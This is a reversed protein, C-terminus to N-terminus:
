ALQGEAAAKRIRSMVAQRDAPHIDKQYDEFTGGFSGPRLGHIAELTESWEVRGSGVDWAWIGTRGAQLALNLRDDSRSRQRSGRRAPKSAIVVERRVEQDGM